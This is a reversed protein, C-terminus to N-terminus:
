ADPKGRGHGPPHPFIPKGGGGAEAGWTGSMDYQDPAPDQSAEVPQMRGNTAQVTGGIGGEDGQAQATLRYTQDKYQFTGGWEERSDDLELREVVWLRESGGILELCWADDTETRRISIKGEEPLVTECVGKANTIMWSGSRPFSVETMEMEKRTSDVSGSRM